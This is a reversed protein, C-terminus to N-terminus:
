ARDLGPFQDRYHLRGFAMGDLRPMSAVGSVVGADPDVEVGTLQASIVLRPTPAPVTTPATAIYTRVILLLPAASNAAAAVLEACIEATAVLRIPMQGRGSEDQGQPAVAIPGPQYTVSGGSGDGGTWADRWDTLHWVRSFGPHAFTVGAVGVQGDPASAYLRALDADLTM